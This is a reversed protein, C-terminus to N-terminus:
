EGGGSGLATVGVAGIKQLGKASTPERGPIDTRLAGDGTRRKPRMVQCVAGAYEIRLPRPM